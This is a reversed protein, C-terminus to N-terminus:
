RIKKVIYDAVLLYNDLLANFWSKGKVDTYDLLLRGASLGKRERKPIAFHDLIKHFDSRGKGVGAHAIFNRIRYSHFLYDYAQDGLRSKLSVWLSNKGLLAMARTAIIEPHAYGSAVQRGDVDTMLRAAIDQRVHYLKKLELEFVSTCFAEWQTAVDFFLLQAMDRTDPPELDVFSGM